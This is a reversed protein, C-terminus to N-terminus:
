CVKSWSFNHFRGKNANEHNGPCNRYFILFFLVNRLGTEILFYNQESLKKWDSTTWMQLFYTQQGDELLCLVQYHNEHDSKYQFGSSSWILPAAIVSISPNSNQVLRMYVTDALSLEERNNKKAVLFYKTSLDLIRPHQRDFKVVTCQRCIKRDLLSLPLIKFPLAVNPKYNKSTFSCVYVTGTSLRLFAWFALGFILLSDSPAQPTQM